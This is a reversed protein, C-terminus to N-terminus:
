PHPVGPQHLYIPTITAPNDSDGARMRVWACEALFGARRLRYAAPALTILPSSSALHAAGENDVEGAILTPQHVQTILDTWTTIEAETIPQWQGSQWAFPQACIRGRGAQLIATLTGDFPPMAAALISLTPIAILALNCAASLGKAASIGIRLGTFSGPGQAVAVATLDTPALHNTHLAARIAPALEITHNNATYWTHEYVLQRGDHLALSITRTATDIALLM